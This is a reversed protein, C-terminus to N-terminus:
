PTRRRRGTPGLDADDAQALDALGREVQELSRGWRGRSLRRLAQGDSLPSPLPLTRGSAYPSPRGETLLSVYVEYAGLATLDAPTVEPHGQVLTKADKPSVAFALRSRTNALVAAQMDRPLQDLFQHALTFGAGYGRAQALAEALDTGTHLYDQVEDIYVMVPHRREAPIAGRSQIVQWLGAVVLSGLLSAADDGIVGRQLPVLLVRRETLVQHLGFRPERQSIVGRLGPRLLPRLKNMVPAIAAAREAESWAEFTAWFADLSFPDSIGTLLSRRFGCNTLLLPLMALSADPRRALTLLGAYLIDQSRPGIAKGYLQKFISLVSDAVLEPKRGHSALPNLGVPHDDNPDLIVVREHHEPPLREIVASVLDGKPEIVVVGRGDVIDQVILRALVTSKGAGTPAIVHLHQLARAAPLALYREETTGTAAAMIRQSGLMGPFPPLLRPHLAPQGPLEDDGLPWATLPLIEAIAIRLPWRWPTAAQNLRDTPERRLRIQVGPAELTRIAALVGLLLHQRRADDAAAAGLRVTAAFGHDAVKTRLATRKEGDLQGGDGRWAVTWWPAVLSSPSNTPVALPVRRPGLLLQLVLTEDKRARVLAALLAHVVTEPSDLRLPRQRTTLTLRGALQVPARDLEPATVTSGLLDRLPRSVANAAGTTTGLLYHVRGATARVELAIQPSAPDAAWQRLCALVLPEDLPRQWRVGHWLPSSM